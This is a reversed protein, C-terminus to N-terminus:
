ERHLRLSRHPRGSKLLQIEVSGKPSGEVELDVVHREAPRLSFLPSRTGGVVLLQYENAEAEHSEVLVRIATRGGQEVALRAARPDEFALVTFYDQREKLGFVSGILGGSIIVVLLVALKLTAIHQRRSLPSEGGRGSVIGCLITIGACTAGVSIETLPVRLVVLVVSALASAALGFGGIVALREWPATPVHPRLLVQELGIGPLAIFLALGAVIRVLHGAPLIIVLALSLAVSAALSIQTSLPSVRDSFRM